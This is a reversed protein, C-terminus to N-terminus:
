SDLWSVLSIKEVVLGLQRPALVVTFREILKLLILVLLCGQIKRSGSPWLYPLFVSFGMIYGFYGGQEEIRKQQKKKIEADGGDDETSESNDSETTSDTAPVAGYQAADGNGVAQGNAPKRLLPQSEEDTRAGYRQAHWLPYAALSTIFWLLFL